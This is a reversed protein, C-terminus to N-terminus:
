RGRIRIRAPITVANVGTLIYFQELRGYRTSNRISVNESFDHEFRATFM